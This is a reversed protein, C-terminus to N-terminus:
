THNCRAASLIVRNRPSMRRAVAAPSELFRKILDAGAESASVGDLAAIRGLRQAVLPSAEIEVLIKKVEM